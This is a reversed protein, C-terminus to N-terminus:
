SNTHKKFISIFTKNIEKDEIPPKCEKAWGKALVYSLKPPINKRLLLGILSALANNRGGIEVGDAISLWYDDGRKKYQTSYDIEFSQTDSKLISSAINELQKKTIFPADNYKFIYIADKSPKVPLAMARSPQYSGEDIKYGIHEALGKTYKRYDEANVSENLPVMLRIRPNETTHNYTTHFAWSYGELQKCIAKYLERFNDIDDYDLALVSRYLINADKRYKQIKNDDKVDGYVVLGSKYKYSNIRPIQLSNIWTSWYCDEELEFSKADLSNYHIIKIEKDHELNIINFTM